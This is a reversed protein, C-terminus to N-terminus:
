APRLPTSFAQMGAHPTVQKGHVLMQLYGQCKRPTEFSPLFFM